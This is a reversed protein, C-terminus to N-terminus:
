IPRTRGQWYDARAVNRQIKGIPTRPLAPVFKVLRPRKHRAIQTACFDILADATVTATSKLVVHAAPAEGSREDPIGFAVCEAVAPHRYLANEIEAPYINEGSQIIVDKIRDVLTLFGADDFYGVDGTRLWGDERFCQATVEAEGFYGSFVHAGRTCIEGTEGAAAIRGDERFIEVAVDPARRGVTAISAVPDDPRRITIPGTESQGYNETFRVQPLAARVRAFLNPSMPSGAYSLERLSSLRRESFEPHSILDNLQTPVLLAATIQEREVLEIFRGANWTRLLVATAGLLIAPAFCVFLGAAHFLPTAIGVIDDSRWSFRTAATLASTHRARHSVVVAKPTGTTGGTFTIALPDDDALDVAVPAAPAADLLEKLTPLRAHGDPQPSEDLLVALEAGNRALAPVVASSCSSDFLVMRAGIRALMAAIDNTTARVSLHASVCGARAAGFYVIAYEPINPAVIALRTGRGLGRVVLAQAFRDAASDLQSYTLQRGDQTVAIRDPHRRASNRLFDGTLM